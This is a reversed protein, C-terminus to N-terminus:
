GAGLCVFAAATARATSDGSAGFARQAHALAQAPRAGARMRQHLDLVLATTPEAPVPLVTAILCKAGLALLVATFGMVEDGPRVGTLGSECASLVVCGPPRAIREWEYAFLPGDALELTSFQPNDARFTGHAAIHVLGAGDLAATLADATADAGTFLRAGPLVRTLRHVEAQGAPLRPGSALVPPGVPAERQDAGLWVTASPAVTIARGACTPLGAWGVDHLAGVPVIVLPRGALHRRLPDFLQSDLAAAAHEVGARAAASDGTTILRRLGFRHWRVLRAAEALPGLDHLGARGDRVLM